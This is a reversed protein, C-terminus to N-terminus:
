YCFVIIDSGHMIFFSPNEKVYKFEDCRHIHTHIYIFFSANERVEM